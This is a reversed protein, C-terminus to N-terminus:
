VKAFKTGEGLWRRILLPINQPATAKIAAATQKVMELLPEDRVLDALRFQVLGAQRTGLVEGPGRLELDRKAIVFGDSSERLIKLRERAIQSIPYSYLLICHSAMKGRGIRGRLQHLQALGLREANEIVMLSANPVDVGVEIVTTAVLLDIEHKRFATMILNKEDAKQRGHILGVKLTPMFTQLSKATVEAAEAQLTESEEILTCIWYVQRKQECAARVKTIVEQRRTHSIVVTTIPTRGPPLEDIISHDLDAYAVMALSRPIPTASMILQHPFRKNFIGKERLKLRQEVGFRHQEDIIVLGLAGFQVNEQFLAHTGVVLHARKLKLDELIIKRQSGSHKGSLWVVNLNLPALWQKFNNFHQESLIETPAMLAVQYNNEIAQLASIAAVLTKGSGVDGQVLRLMPKVSAMDRAIEQCVRLQAKTPKFPLTSLFRASLKTALPMSHAVQEDIKARIKTLSLHHALLEEFALRQQMKQLAQAKPEPRHVYNLAALLSPLKYQALITAPILEPLLAGKNLLELVQSTLNYLTKQTLGSTTPYVPTLKEELQISRATPHILEKHSGFGRVEGFCTLRTGVKLNNKQHANYHFYRLTLKGTADQLTCLLNRRKAFREETAVIIGEVVATDGIQLAAIPTLHTCDQYRLPLHFLLDQLTNIGCNALKQAINPGVGKLITCSLAGLKSPIALATPM